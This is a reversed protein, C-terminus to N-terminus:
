RRGVLFVRAVPVFTVTTKNFCVHFRPSVTRVFSFLVASRAYIERARTLEVKMRTGREV